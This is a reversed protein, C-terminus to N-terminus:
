IQCNDKFVMSNSAFYNNSFKYIQKKFINSIEQFIPMKQSILFFFFVLFFLWLQFDISFKSIRIVAHGVVIFASLIQKWIKEPFM